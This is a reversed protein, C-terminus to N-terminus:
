VALAQMFTTIDDGTLASVKKASTGALAEKVKTGQGTSVLKTAAAVAEELTYAVEPEGGGVLDEEAEEAPEEAAAAEKAAKADAAAKAKAAAAAKAKAEEAAKAKSEAIRANAAEATRATLDLAEAEGADIAPAAALGKGAPHAAIADLIAQERATYAEDDAVTITTTITLAM